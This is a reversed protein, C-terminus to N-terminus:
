RDSFNIRFTVFLKQEEESRQVDKCLAKTINERIEMSLIGPTAGEASQKRHCSTVSINWLLLQPLTRWGRKPHFCLVIPAGIWRRSRSCFTDLTPEQESLGLVLRAERLGSKTEWCTPRFAILM